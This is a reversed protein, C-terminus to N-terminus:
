NSLLFFGSSIGFWLDFLKRMSCNLVMRDSDGIASIMVKM